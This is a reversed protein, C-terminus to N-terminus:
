SAEMHKPTVTHRLEAYLWALLAIDAKYTDRPVKAWGYFDLYYQDIGDRQYVQEPTM